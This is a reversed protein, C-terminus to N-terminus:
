LRRVLMEGGGSQMNDVMDVARESLSNDVM